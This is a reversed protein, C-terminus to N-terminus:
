EIEREVLVKLFKERKLVGEHFSIQQEHASISEKIANMEEQLEKKSLEM